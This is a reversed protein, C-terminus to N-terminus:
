LKADKNLERALWQYGFFFVASYYIISILSALTSTVGLLQGPNEEGLLFQTFFIIWTFIVYVLGGFWFCVPKKEISKAVLFGQISSITLIAIRYLIMSLLVAILSFLSSKSIIAITESQISTKTLGMGLNQFVMGAGAGILTMGTFIQSILGIGFGIALGDSIVDEGKKKRNKLFLLMGFLLLFTTFVGGILYVAPNPSGADKPLNTQGAMIIQRIFNQVFTSLFFTIIWIVIGWYLGDKKYDPKFRSILRIPIGSSFIFIFGSTIVLLGKLLM